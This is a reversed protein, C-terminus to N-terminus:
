RHRAAYAAGSNAAPAAASAAIGAALKQLERRFDSRPAAEALSKGLNIAEATAYFDNSLLGLQQGGPLALAQRAEEVDIMKSRRRYRTAIVRVSGAPVHHESLAMLMRRAARIDKVSLQLLLLTMASHRALEAAASIPIRPADIVTWRYAAKCADVAVGLRQPDIAVPEGLRDRPASILVHMSESHSLATSQILQSDIMGGRGLVDFLGYEGEAGLYAAVAGYYPDLDVVLAPEVPADPAQKRDAGLLQLEAALNVAVTTAGCGGGASLV